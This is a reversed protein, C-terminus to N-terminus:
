KRLRPQSQRLAYVAESQWEGKVLEHEVLLGERRMGLRELVRASAVNRPEIRGVVRHLGFADFALDLVAAAAETAYGRGQHDPHVIYGLEGQLHEASTLALSADGVVEGGRDVAFGIGDGTLAFRTLGIRRALRERSEEITAPGDYLWRVASEHDRLAHLADLETPEYSRLVLRETEIRRPRPHLELALEHQDLAPDSELPRRAGTRAFGLAEYLPGAAPAADSLSLELREFGRVRAWGIVAEVLARGLGRGRAGPAVWLGWLVPETGAVYVGAMAEWDGAVFVAGPGGGLMDWHVPPRAEDQEATAGFAGPSDRLAALRLARLRAGEGVEM